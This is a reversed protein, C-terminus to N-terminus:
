WRRYRTLVEDANVCSACTSWTPVSAAGERLADYSLRFQRTPFLEERFRYRSFAGPKRVLSGIVHRYNVNAEREGRVREMREM